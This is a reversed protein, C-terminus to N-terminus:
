KWYVVYPQLKKLSDEPLTGIKGENFYYAAAEIIVDKIDQPVNTGAAGYGAVYEILLANKDRLAVGAGWVYGTKIILRGPESYTDLQYQTSNQTAEAHNVDYYKVSTVSVLPPRPLKITDSIKCADLMLEWSQNIFSRKCYNEAQTRATIAYNALRTNADTSALRLFTQVDTGAVPEAAPATKLKIM